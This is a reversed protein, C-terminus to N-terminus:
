YILININMINKINIYNEYFKTKNINFDKFSSIIKKVNCTCKAKKFQEIYESFVCDNQCKTKNKEIFNKIRDKRIIDTGKDSSASYCIDNFYGSSLNVEDLNETLNIPIYLDINENFCVSLNLKYLNNENIKAYINFGIIPIEYGDINVEIKELYFKNNNKNTKKNNENKLADWCKGLDINVMNSEIDKQIDYKILTIAINNYVVTEMKNNDLKSIINSDSIFKKEINNIM